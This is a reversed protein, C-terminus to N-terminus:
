QRKDTRGMMTDVFRKAANRRIGISSAAALLGIRPKRTSLFVRWLYRSARHDEQVYLNYAAEWQRRLMRRRQEPTLQPSQLWREAIRFETDCHAPSPKRFVTRVMSTEVVRYRALRGPLFEFDYLGSLRRWMDYDEYTLSEDYGGVSCIADRRILTSMAPIFNGDALRSFIRGSPPSGHVGHAEMFSASLLRGSEDMQAADSYVVGVGAGSARMAEYQLELKRPEWTDDTAIMAIFEGNAVSLAENLTKCLGANRDHRIFQADPYHDGLWGSILEQSRDRSADDTVILQFDQWTQAAISNLCDHLFREHNYCLAIVTIPPRHELGAKKESM